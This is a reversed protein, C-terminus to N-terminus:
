RAAEWESDLSRQGQREEMLSLVVEPSSMSSHSFCFPVNRPRGTCATGLLAKGLEARGHRQESPGAGAEGPLVTSGQSGEFGRAAGVPLLHARGESSQLHARSGHVKGNGTM